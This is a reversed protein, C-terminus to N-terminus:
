VAKICNKGANKAAYVSDDAVKILEASLDMEKTKSAVGISVSGYWFESGTPIKLQNVQRHVEKALIMAGDLDTNVCIILFEDGGLRCVIDDNRVAGVFTKALVQLVEDGKDHGYTDNVGKFHDVDLMICSILNEDDWLSDLVQMCLRRNAIDTLEDTLSLKELKANVKELEQTREKVKKELSKNMQQLEENKQSVQNILRDLANLLPEVSDDINKEENEYAEKPSSGSEIAEIQKALNKDTVLIHYALWNILFDLLFNLEDIKKNNINKSLFVVKDVFAMHEKIHKENHRSDVNAKRALEEEEKFHYMTYNKLQELLQNIDLTEKKNNIAYDSINNVIDVLTRHQSDVESIGTMFNDDWKFTSM